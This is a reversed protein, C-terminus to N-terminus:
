GTQYEIRAHGIEERRRRKSGPLWVVIMGRVIQLHQDVCTVAPSRERGLMRYCSCGAGARAFRRSSRFEPLASTGSDSNLLTATTKDGHGCQPCSRRCRLILRHFRCSSIRPTLSRVQARIDAAMKPGTSGRRLRRSETQPHFVPQRRCGSTQIRTLRVESNIAGISREIAAVLWAAGSRNTRLQSAHVCTFSCVEFTKFV